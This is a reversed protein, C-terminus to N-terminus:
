RNMTHGQFDSRRTCSFPKNASLLSGAEGTVLNARSLITAVDLKTAIFQCRGFNGPFHLYFHIIQHWFLKIGLERRLTPASRTIRDKRRRQKRTHGPHVHCTRSTRTKDCKRRCFKQVICDFAVSSWAAVFYCDDLRKPLMSASSALVLRDM